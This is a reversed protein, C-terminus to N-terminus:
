GTIEVIAYMGTHVPCFTEYRGPKLTSTIVLASEAPGCLRKSSILPRGRKRKFSQIQHCNSLDGYDLNTLEIDQGQAVQLPMGQLTTGDYVGTGPFFVGNSIFTGGGVFMKVPEMDAAGAGGSWAPLAILALLIAVLAKRM